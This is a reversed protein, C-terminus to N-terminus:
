CSAWAALTMSLQFWAGLCIAALLVTWWRVAYAPLTIGFAFVLFLLTSLVHELVSGSERLCILPGSYPHAEWTGSMGCRLYVLCDLVFMGSFLGGRVWNWRTLKRITERM